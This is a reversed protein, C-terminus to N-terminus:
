LSPRVAVLVDRTISRDVRHVFAEDVKREVTFGAGVAVDALLGRPLTRRNWALM